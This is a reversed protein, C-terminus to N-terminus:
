RPISASRAAIRGTAEHRRCRHPRRNISDKLGVLKRSLAHRNRRLEKGRMGKDELGFMVNQIATLWAAARSFQFVM